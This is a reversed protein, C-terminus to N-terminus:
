FTSSLGVQFVRGGDPFGPFLQYRQNFLNDISGTLVLTDSLPARMKFDLTTYGSLFETNINNIPYGSLSNMLLALYLGEPNEYSVGLNLKDAGVFRLEQNIEAPNASELIRPNNATYNAFAYVNRILQLNLSAEIGTTQVLGINEFTGTNGNVPPILRTFAITDSVRNSFFTLRLLGINGLRQDIGIDFSDGREPKLAPNGINTPNNNFLNAITPARFNIIYNARLTTSDFLDLKAGISPSTFSGNVLSSFDQRIGLNLSFSPTLNTEYKAFIAGQSIGDDYNERTINTDYSFTTNRVNTNRYDFGYLIQNNILNWSHTAQMGYSAQNTDFRNQSTLTNSRNDFRTNLFDAYVRVTLLSNDGSGLQSNWTLDTLIQDTYKRNNETLSNFFGQGFEPEPIPVGGPVGQEKGLYLTSLTLTNRTGLNTELKINFNNYLADNNARTGEFNAEPIVFPYNNQAQTRNYGVVWSIDGITGSNQVIQQNLGYAGLNVNAETIIEGTPRRTVINIVGGIADSGYLTSGGGPLVEVREINDTTFESLDFGGGGLNNIPRGDLLILVQGTNAGRIFQGSLANVETGVTGDGLIGPLFRLAERVTRAGQAKMEENTIVYVPRTSDQVTGERRFPSFVPENLLKDIVTLEIDAAQEETAEPTNKPTVAVPQLYSASNKHRPFESLQTIETAITNDNGYIIGLAVTLSSVVVQIISTISHTSM